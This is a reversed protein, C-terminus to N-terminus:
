SSLLSSGDRLRVDGAVALDRGLGRLALATDGPERVTLSAISSGDEGLDVRGTLVTAGRGAGVIRVAEGRHDEFTGEELHPGVRITDTGPEGAAADLAAAVTARQECGAATTDVCFTAAQAPAAMVLVALLAPLWRM